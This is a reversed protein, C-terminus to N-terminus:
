LLGLFGGGGWGRVDFLVRAMMQYSKRGALLVVSGGLWAGLLLLTTVLLPLSM